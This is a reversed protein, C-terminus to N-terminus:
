SESKIESTKVLSVELLWLMVKLNESVFSSHKFLSGAILKVISKSKQYLDGCLVGNILFSFVANGTVGEGEVM